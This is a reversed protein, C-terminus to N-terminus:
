RSQADDAAATRPPRPATSGGPAATPFALRESYPQRTTLCHFLCGLFRNYLNRLAASHRDGHDKRRDYHVRAGPSATLSAFAWIYGVAALRRNKVRRHVVARSRGSARTIPAAGAYAKLARADAFRTHDDGIEAFLRAATLEGLGPFSTVIDHDPHDRFATVTAQHLDAAAQCAADLVALLALAQRGMAEEIPTPQRLHAGQFGVHLREAWTQLHYIRGCDKLAARLEAITRQRATALTPAIKLVARAERCTIGGEQGAFLTLFAPHYERLLSRLENGIRHVRWVADQHGRALVAIAQAQHSDAPLPRHLAMDTRLINALVVADQRDSKKRSVSHRDRYRAASLPNIAYVRRGTARLQSVLLGHPTEIAVPIPIEATDGAEALITLLEEYGQPSEAIRQQAIMTGTENVLAIDHHKEAWDIGCYVKM